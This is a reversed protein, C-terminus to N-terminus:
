FVESFITGDYKMTSISDHSYSVAYVYDLINFMSVVGRHSFELSSPVSNEAGVKRWQIWSRASGEGSPRVEM